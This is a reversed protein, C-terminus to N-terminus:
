FNFGGNSRNGKSPHMRILNLAFGVSLGIIHYSKLEKDLPIQRQYFMSLRTFFYKDTNLTFLKLQMGPSIYAKGSHMDKGIEVTPHFMLGLNLDYIMEPGFKYAGFKVGMYRFNDGQYYNFAITQYCRLFRNTNEWEL